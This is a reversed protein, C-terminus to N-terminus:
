ERRVATAPKDERMGQFAPHRVNGDQTWETFSVEAVLMPQVWRESGKVRKSWRGKTRAHAADFPSQAIELQELRRLIASATASDWGTGVSGASHLRGDDDYVGLLLSGIEKGAGTRTTFGGIVFEQRHQCKVKLWAETRSSVYRADTRKAM